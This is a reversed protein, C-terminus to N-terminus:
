TKDVFNARNLCANLVTDIKARDGHGKPEPSM